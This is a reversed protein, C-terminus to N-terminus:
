YTIDFLIHFIPQSNKAKESVRFKVCITIFNLVCTKCIKFKLFIQTFIPLDSLILKQNISSLIHEESLYYGTISFQLCDQHIWHFLECATLVALGVCKSANTRQEMTIPICLKARSLKSKLDIWLHDACMQSLGFGGLFWGSEDLSQFTKWTLDYITLQSVILFQSQFAFSQM